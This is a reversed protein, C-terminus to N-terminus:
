YWFLKELIKMDKQIRNSADFGHYTKWHIKYINYAFNKPSLWIYKEKDITLISYFERSTKPWIGYFCYLDYNSLLNIINDIDAEEIKYNASKDIKLVDFIRLTDRTLVSVLQLWDFLWM